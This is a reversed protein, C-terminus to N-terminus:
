SWGADNGDNTGDRRTPSSRGKKTSFNEM